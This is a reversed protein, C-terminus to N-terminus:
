AEDSADDLTQDDLDEDEEDEPDLDDEDMDEDELDLNIKELDEDADYEAALIGRRKAESLEAERSIDGATRLAVVHKFSDDDGFGLDFDTDIKVEATPDTDKMWLGTFYFVQELAIKLNLAWAQIASNGKQAAFATTVVTLNGSQATLPQRGLERLERKTAEIDKLLFELSQAGPEIFTWFGAAGASGEQPAYLVAHPGTQIPKAQGDDGIEPSVGNGTLMPFAVLEKINKLGSEQQFLEIQLDAADKMPPQVCWGSGKRRGTVFPVLPIEPLTMTQPEAIRVWEESGTKGEQLEWLEWTPPGYAGDGLPERNFIRVRKNTKEGWGNLGTRSTSVEKLRVHVFQERGNIIESYAAIVCDASYRVWYPRVGMAAEEARTMNESVGDTYDVLVWDLADAIGNYFVDGAFSHLSNGRGDVDQAFEIYRADSEASLQVEKAFPRQALNEVIDQFINTLKANTQRFKYKQDTEEPYKPLFAKEERMAETGALITSAKKWYVSMAKWDSSPTSPDPKGALPTGQM